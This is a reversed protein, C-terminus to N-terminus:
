QKDLSLPYTVSFVIKSFGRWPSTTDGKDITVDVVTVGYQGQSARVYGAYVPVGSNLAYATGVAQVAPPFPMYRHTSDYTDNGVGKEPLTCVRLRIARNAATPTPVASDLDHAFRISDVDFNLTVYGPGIEFNLLRRAPNYIVLDTPSLPAPEPFDSDGYHQLHATCFCGAKLYASSGRLAGAIVGALYVYGNQTLHQLNERANSDSRYFMFNRYMPLWMTEPHVSLGANTAREIIESYQYNLGQNPTRPMDPFLHVPTRPWAAKVTTCLHQIKDVIAQRDNAAFFIDNTSAVIVIATPHAATADALAQPIQNDAVYGLGNGAVGYNKVWQAGLYEALKRPLLGDYYTTWSDGLMIIREGGRAQLAQWTASADSSIAAAIAEDNSVANVGPLGQEGRPGQYGRPGPMVAELLDIIQDTM